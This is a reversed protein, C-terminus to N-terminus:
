IPDFVVLHNTMSKYQLRYWESSRHVESVRFEDLKGIYSNGAPSAGLSLVAGDSKRVPECTTMGMMVDNRYTRLTNGDCDVAIFTYADAPTEVVTQANRNGGYRLYFQVALTVGPKAVIGSIGPAKAMVTRSGLIQLDILQAEPKMWLEFSFNSKGEFIQKSDSFNLVTNGSGGFARAGAIAADDTRTTDNQLANHKGFVDPVSGAENMHWVGEFGNSWTQSTYRSTAGLGYTMTITPHEGDGLHKVRVWVISTGGPNWIEDEWALDVGDQLFGLYTHPETVYEYTIDAPTLVLMIPFDDLSEGVPGDIFHFTRTGSGQPTEPPADIPLPADIEVVDDSLGIPSEGQGSFSCGLLVAAAMARM